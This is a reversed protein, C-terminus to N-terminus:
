ICIARHVADKGFRNRLKDMTLYLNIQEPTNEFLNLQQAGHILHSFKVGILRILVRRKYLHLFLEKATAILTHDFSTYPIRKQLTHTDFDTYRIKITVCSTLKGQKRLELGIREVMGAIQRNIYEIDAIDTEFTHESSISKQEHYHVVPTSDIGNARKWIELGNQGMLKRLVDAPISRLTRVNIIGMSSLLHFTKEGIMPIKRISLPDMFPLVMNKQVDKEGNPKAEGTAIKSVTKNVSLGFSIPLGTEKIIRERLEHSWKYCGFFRDMGTIDIYHEDISSKEYIPSQEAIIDTVINSYYSYAEMDGRVIIADPCLNRAMKMPMASNVGFKRAEYSCTSVVSRDSFGGIIVPKGTLRNDRLREVSVFFADLDLHLVTRNGPITPDILSPEM